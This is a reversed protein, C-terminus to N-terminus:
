CEPLADLNNSSSGDPNSRLYRGEVVHIEAQVGDVETFYRHAASLIDDIVRETTRPSWREGENCVALIDGDENRRVATIQREYVPERYPNTQRTYEMEGAGNVAFLSLTGDENMCVAPDLASTLGTELWDSWESSDSSQQRRSRITNDAFRVFVQLQGWGNRSVVPVAGAPMTGGLSVWAGSWDGRVGRTSSVPVRERLFQLEGPESRAFVHVVGNADLCAAPDGGVTGLAAWSDTWDDPSEEWIHQLTNEDDRAFIHLHRQQNLTVTPRGTFDISDEGLNKGELWWSELVNQGRIHIRGSTQRAIALLLREPGDGVRQTINVGNTAEGILQSIQDGKDWDRWSGNPEEQWVHALWPHNSLTAFVELHGEHNIDVCFPSLFGDGSGLGGDLELWDSFGSDTEVSVQVRSASNLAFVNVKGNEQVAAVPAAISMGGLSVPVTWNEMGVAEPSLPPAFEAILRAFYEPREVHISHGTQEFSLFRGPPNLSRTALDSTADHIHSWNYNDQQGACLLMRDTNQTTAHSFWLQEMAVRWHWKRFRANYIEHRDAIAGTIHHSKCPEWGDRYWYEGQPRLDFAINSQFFTNFFYAERSDDAEDEWARESSAQPGLNRFLDDDSPTWVSAASWPVVNAAYPNPFPDRGALRLSLNGGLSGGISLVIQNSIDRGLAESLAAVFGHIFTDLFDLARFRGPNGDPRAEPTGDILLEHDMMESYGCGPLDMAVVAFGRRTLPHLLSESEELRSSHGHIFLIVPIGPDLVPEPDDALTDSSPAELLAPDGVAIMTRTRVTQTRLSPPEVIVNLDFTPYETRPVNVPRHPPDDSGSVAIWGFSDRGSGTRLMNAVSLARNLAWEAAQRRQADTMPRLRRLEEEIAEVTPLGTRFREFAGAGTVALDAFATALRIDEVSESAAQVLAALPNDRAIRAMQRLEDTLLGDSFASLEGAWQDEIPTLLERGAEVIEADCSAIDDCGNQVVYALLREEWYADPRRVLYEHPTEFYGVPHLGHPACGVDPSPTIPRKIRM